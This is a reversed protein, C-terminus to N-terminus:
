LRGAVWVLSISAGVLGALRLMGPVRPSEMDLDLPEQTFVPQQVVWQGPDRRIECELLAALERMGADLSAKLSRPSPQSGADGTASAAFLLEHAFRGTIRNDSHRYGFAGIV